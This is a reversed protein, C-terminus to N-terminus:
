DVCSCAGGVTSGEQLDFRHSLSVHLDFFNFVRSLHFVFDSISPFSCILQGESESIQVNCVLDVCNCM